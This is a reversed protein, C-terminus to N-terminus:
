RDDKIRTSDQPVVPANLKKEPPTKDQDAESLARVFYVGDLSVTVRCWLVSKKLPLTFLLERPRSKLVSGGAKVCARYYCELIEVTSIQKDVQNKSNRVDIKLDWYPGMVKQRFLTDKINWTFEQHDYKSQQARTIVSQPYYTIRPPLPLSDVYKEFVAGPRTDFVIRNVFPIERILRLRYSKDNNLVLKGWVNGADSPIVFSVQSTDQFFLSGNNDVVQKEIFERFKKKQRFVSDYNYSIEWYHGMAQRNNAGGVDQIDLYNFNHYKSVKGPVGKYSKIDPPAPFSETQCFSNRAPLLFLSCALIIIRTKM